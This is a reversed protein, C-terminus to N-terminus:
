YGADSAGDDDGSEDDTTHPTFGAMCMYMRMILMLTVVAAMGVSIKFTSMKDARSISYM